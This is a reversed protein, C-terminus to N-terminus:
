RPSKGETLATVQSGLRAAEYAILEHEGHSGSLSHSLLKTSHFAICDHEANNNEVDSLSWSRPQKGLSPWEDKQSFYNRSLSSSSRPKLVPSFHHSCTTRHIFDLSQCVYSQTFRVLMTYFFDLPSM